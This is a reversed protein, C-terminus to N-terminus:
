KVPQLKPNKVKRSKNKSARFLNNLLTPKALNAETGEELFYGIRLTSIKQVGSNGAIGVIVNNFKEYTLKTM